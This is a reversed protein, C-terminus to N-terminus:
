EREPLDPLSDVAARYRQVADIPHESGYIGRGAIFIEAPSATFAEIDAPKLGGTVSVRGGRRYLEAIAELDGDSWGLSGTAEADRGRHIIFQSVGCSVAHDVYGWDWGESLEVQVDKGREKAVHVVAEVTSYAAGSVVSVWDAGADYALNAILSGAEAIRVDALVTHEPYAARLCRVAEMGASLCLITGVEVVDVHSATANLAALAEPITIVDLAIQLKRGAPAIVTTM